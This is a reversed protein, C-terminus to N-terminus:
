PQQSGGARYLRSEHNTADLDDYYFVGVGDAINTGIVTWIIPPSLNEAAQIWYTHGPQGSFGLHMNGDGLQSIGSISPGAPAVTLSYDFSGNGVNAGNYGKVHLYWVGASTPIKGLTGSNWQPESDTWAHTASTDWAYRYYQVLGPGFGGVATWSVNAGAIVNTPSGVISGLGPPVSLTWATTQGQQGTANHWAGRLDASNDRAELTYIYSTNPTLGTDGFAGSTLTNWPAIVSGNRYVQVGVSGARYWNQADQNGSGGASEDSGPAVNVGQDLPLNWALDVKDTSTSTIASFAPTQPPVNDVYVDYFRAYNGGDQYLSGGTAGNNQFSTRGSRSVAFFHFRRHGIVGSTTHSWNTGSPTGSVDAYNGDANGLNYGWQYQMTRWYPVPGTSKSNGSATVTTNNGYFSAGNSIAVGGYINSVVIQPYWPDQEYGLGYSYYGGLDSYNVSPENLSVNSSNRLSVTGEFGSTFNHVKFLVRSWGAPLSVAATRDQDRTLGRSANTSNVLAGNVWLRNGDDSGIVFQPAAGAPSFLWAFGYADANNANGYAVANGDPSIGNMAGAFNLTNSVNCDGTTVRGATNGNLGLLTNIINGHSSDVAPYLYLSSETFSRNSTDTVNTSAYPGVCTWDNMYQWRAGQIHMQSYGVPFGGCNKSCSGVPPGDDQTNSRFGGFSAVNVTSNYFTVWDCSYACGNVSGGLPGSLDTGSTDVAFFKATATAHADPVITSATLLGRGTFGYTPLPPMWRIDRNFVTCNSGAIPIGFSYWANLGSCTTYGVYSPNRSTSDLTVDFTYSGFNTGPGPVTVTVFTTFTEGFWQVGEELMKWSFAYTGPSTPATATFSFTLNNGPAVPSTPMVVRSFGWRTNDQANQSGLKYPHAGTNTWTTTGTNKFTISAIFTNGTTVTSPVNGDVVTAGDGLSTAIYNLLTAATGNIVDLDVNGSIGPVSGSSTYQWAHWVGSGWANQSGCVSWPTGTQPNQGNYNAIDSYWQAVSSDFNGAHCASTYICPKTKVGAAAAYGIVANIWANAWESYTSAGVVGTFVEMDLMPMFTLGDAKFYPSVVNWYHLAETAPTNAEPHAFHYFGIPIGVAKANTVNHIFDQDNNNAGETAKCWAFSIGSGAISTWNPQGQYHSVDIGLPRQALAWRPSLCLLMGLLMVPTVSALRLLRSCIVRFSM